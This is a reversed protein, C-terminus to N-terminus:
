KLGCKKRVCPDKILRDYENRLDDAYDQCNYQADSFWGFMSYSKPKVNAVARRMICDNYHGSKEIQQYTSSDENVIMGSSGYGINIIEGNDEVVLQEHAGVRNTQEAKKNRRRIGIRQGIFPADLPQKRTQSIIQHCLISRRM